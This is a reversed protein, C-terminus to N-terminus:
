KNLGSVFRKVEPVKDIVSEYPGELFEMLFRDLMDLRYHLEETNMLVYRIERGAETELQGVIQKLRVKNVSNIVLVMDAKSKPYNIFAGSILILKVDGAKKLKKFVESKANINLKSVLAKLENYFPFDLRAQYYKKGQRTKKSIFGMKLLKALEKVVDPRKMGVKEAALSADFETEPHLLFLRLLRARVRSGFLTDFLSVEM